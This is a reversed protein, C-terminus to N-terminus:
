SSSVYIPYNGMKIQAWPAFPNNDELDVGPQTDKGMATEGRGEWNNLYDTKETRAWWCTLSKQPADFAM